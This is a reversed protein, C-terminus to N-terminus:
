SRTMSSSAVVRRGLLRDLGAFAAAIVLGLAFIVAVLALVTVYGHLGVNTFGYPYTGGIAGRVLMYGVWVLPVVLAAPVTRWTICGRPGWVLWVLVTLAPVIVHTLPNTLHGWGSVEVYPSLLVWYVIATITIMLLGSLRLARRWPTVGNPQLALSTTSVAVVINSWITFYSLSDLLRVMAGSWGPASNGYLGPEIAVRAYGDVTSIVVTAVVGLWALAATVAHAVRDM